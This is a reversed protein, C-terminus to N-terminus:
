FRVQLETTFNSTERSNNKFVSLFYSLPLEHYKDNYRRYAMISFSRKTFNIDSIKDFNYSRKITKSDERTYRKRSRHGVIIM